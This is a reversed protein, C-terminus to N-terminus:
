RNLGKERIKQNIEDELRQIAVPQMEEDAKQMFGQAAINRAAWGYNQPGAYQLSARGATVIAAGKARNGRVDAALRGSRSRVHGAAREAGESAIASFAGKLDDVDLGLRQLDRVTASLGSVRFGVSTAM